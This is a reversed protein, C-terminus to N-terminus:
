TKLGNIEASFLEPSFRSWILLAFFQFMQEVEFVGQDTIDGKTKGYEQLLNLQWPLSPFVLSPSFRSSRCSVSILIFPLTPNYFATLIILAGTSSFLTECDLLFFSAITKVCQERNVCAVPMQSAIFLYLFMVEKKRLSECLFNLSRSYAASYCWNEWKEGVGPAWCMWNIFSRHQCLFFLTLKLSCFHQFSKPVKRAPPSAM